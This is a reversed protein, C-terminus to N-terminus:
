SADDTSYVIEYNVYTAAALSILLKKNQTTTQGLCAPAPVFPRSTGERANLVWKSCVVNASTEEYFYVTQSDSESQFSYSHVKIVKNAVNSVVTAGTTSTRGNATQYTKADHKTSQSLSGISNTGTPLAASVTVAGTNCTTIKGDISDVHGHVTGLTTETAPSIEAGSSNVPTVAEAHVENAGVTNKFTQLKKGTSDAPCQVYDDAM